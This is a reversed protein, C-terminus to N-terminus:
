YGRERIVQNQLPLSDRQQQLAAVVSRAIATPSPQSAIHPTLTLCPVQWAPADPALPEQRHVDVVAGGLRGQRLLTWLAADDVLEGRGVNILLAGNPMLGLREADLLGETSPTLPLTCVVVDATGLAAALGDAGHCCALGELAHPTRSWGTVAFGAAVLMRAVPAGVQGLGLVTARCSGFAPPAHRLWQARAQQERYLAHGRVHAIAHGLVYQGIQASQLPDVVRVVPLRPPLDPMALLKDVGSSAACLLSLRPLRPLLGPHLRYAVLCRVAEPAVEDLSCAVPLTSDLSRMAAAVPGPMQPHTLLLTTM